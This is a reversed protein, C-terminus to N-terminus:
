RESVQGDRRQIYTDISARKSTDICRYGRFCTYGSLCKYGHKHMDMGICITAYICVHQLSYEARWIVIDGDSKWEADNTM